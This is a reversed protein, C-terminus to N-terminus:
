INTEWTLRLSPHCSWTIHYVPRLRINLGMSARSAYILIWHVLTVISIRQVLKVIAIRQLLFSSLQFGARFFLSSHLLLRRLACPSHLPPPSTGVLMLWFSLPLCSQHMLAIYLQRSLMDINKRWWVMKLHLALVLFNMNLVMHPLILLFSHVQHIWRVM